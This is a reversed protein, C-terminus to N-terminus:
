KKKAKELQDKINQYFMKKGKDTTIEDEQLKGLKTAKCVEIYSKGVALTLIGATGSTIVGGTVTGIGPVTRLLGAALSRGLLSAGSIGLVASVLTQIGDKKININFIRSIASLLATQEAILMPADAFPIPVACTAATTGVAVTVAKEAAKIMKNLERDSTRGHKGSSSHVNDKVNCDSKAQPNHESDTQDTSSDTEEESFAHFLIDSDNVEDIKDSQKEYYTAFFEPSVVKATDLVSQCIENKRTTSVAIRDIVPSNAEFDIDNLFRNIIVLRYLLEQEHKSLSDIADIKVTCDGSIHCANGLLSGLLQKSYVTQNEDLDVMILLNAIIYKKERSLDTFDIQATGGFKLREIAMGLVNDAGQLSNLIDKHKLLENSLAANETSLIVLCRIVLEQLKVVSTIEKAMQIQGQKSFTLAEILHHYWKKKKLDELDKQTATSLDQAAELIWEVDTSDDLSIRYINM